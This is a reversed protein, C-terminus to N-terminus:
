EVIKKVGKETRDVTREIGKKTKDVTRTVGKEVRKATREIGKGVKNAGREIRNPKEDDALAGAAATLGMALAVLVFLARM